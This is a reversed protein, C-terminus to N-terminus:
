LFRGHSFRTYFAQTGLNGRSVNSFKKCLFQICIFDACFRPIPM